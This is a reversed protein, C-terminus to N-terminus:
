RRGGDGALWHHFARHEGELAPNRQHQPRLAALRRLWLLHHRGAGCDPRLLDPGGGSVEVQANREPEARLSQHRSLRLLDDRGRRHRSRLLCFREPCLGVEAHWESQARLVERRIRQQRGTPSRNRFLDDRRGRHGAVFLHLRVRQQRLARRFLALAVPWQNLRHRLSVPRLFRCLGHRQIGARAVLAACRRHRLELAADDLTCIAFGPDAGAVLPHGGADM